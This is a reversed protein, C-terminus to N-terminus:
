PEIVVYRDEFGARPVYQKGRSGKFLRNRTLLLGNVDLVVCCTKEVVHMTMIM